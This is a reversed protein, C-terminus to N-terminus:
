EHIMKLLKSFTKSVKVIQNNEHQWLVVNWTKTNFCFYDGNGVSAIPFCEIGRTQFIKYLSIANGRVDACLNINRSYPVKGLKPIDVVSSELGGGNIEGIIKCYDSPFTLGIELGIKKVEDSTLKRRVGIWEM